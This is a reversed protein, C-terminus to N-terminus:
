KIQAKSVAGVQSTGTKNEEVCVRIHRNKQETQEVLRNGPLRM